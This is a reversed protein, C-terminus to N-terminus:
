AKNFYLYKHTRFSSNSYLVGNEDKIYDGYRRINGDGDM